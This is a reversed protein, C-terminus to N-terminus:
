RDNVASQYNAKAENLALLKELVEPNDYAVKELYAMADEREGKVAHELREQSPNGRGALLSARQEESLKERVNQPQCEKYKIRSGKRKVKRCKIKYKEDDVKANYADYFIDEADDMEKRYESISKTADFNAMVVNQVTLLSVTSHLGSELSASAFSSSSAIIISVFLNRLTTSKSNM